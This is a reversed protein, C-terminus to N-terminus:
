RANVKTVARSELADEFHLSTGTTIGTANTMGIIQFNNDEDLYNGAIPENFRLKLDNGM